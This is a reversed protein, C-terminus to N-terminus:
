IPEAVYYIRFLLAATCYVRKGEWGEYMVRVPDIRDSLGGLQEDSLMVSMAFDVYPDMTEDVSGDANAPDGLARAEVWLWICRRYVRDMPVLPDEDASNEVVMVAYTPLDDEDLSRTPARHPAKLGTPPPLPPSATPLGLSLRSIVEQVIEEQKSSM